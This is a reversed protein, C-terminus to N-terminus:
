WEGRVLHVDGQWGGRLCVLTHGDPSWDFGTMPESTFATIQVAHGGDLPLRWVNGVGHEDARVHDIATGDPSFRFGSPSVASRPPLPVIREESGDTAIIRLRPGAEALPDLAVISRGDPSVAPFKAPRPSVLVPAGGALPVRWLLDDAAAVFLAFSGDPAVATERAPVHSLRAASRGEADTRFVHPTGHQVLTVVLTRGDPAPSADYVSRAVLRTGGSARRLWLDEEVGTYLLSGDALFHPSRTAVGIERARSTDGYPVLWVGARFRGACVALTRGDASLGLSWGSPRLGALGVQRVEGTDREVRYIHRTLGVDGRRQGVVLLAEGGPLYAKALAYLWDPPGVPRERGTAVDVEVVGVPQGAPGGTGATLAVTRGDPSWATFAYPSALPRRAIVKEPGGGADALVLRSEARPRDNRVGAVWREDPSLRPHEPADDSVVTWRGEDRSLRYLAHRGTGVKGDVYLSREDRSFRNETALATAPVDPLREVAGTGRDLLWLSPAAGRPQEAYLVLRGSPSIGAVRVLGSHTLQEVRSGEGASRLLSLGAAAALTVVAASAAAVAAPHRRLLKALRRGPGPRRAVLPRHTLHREVDASLEQAGAYRRRPDKELCKRVIWSLEGRLLRRLSRVDTGRRRALEEADPLPRSWTSSLSRPEEERLIRALEVPDHRLREPDFPLVGSLLEYLVVGLAYVDTAPGIEGRRPDAQEPAMYAPTGLLEGVRTAATRDTLRGELAKALGFDIVKVFPREADGGLLINSPKLDRHVIGRGHAHEVAECVAQFLRLRRDIPLRLEDCRRTIPGGEVYEMAFYPHGEATTGAEYLQAIGPHSLSALAQREAELRVATERSDPRWKLLKLAVHRRVPEHQEALYVVGM